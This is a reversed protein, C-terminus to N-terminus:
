RCFFFSFSGFSGTFKGLSGPFEGLSGPFEGLSGTFKGLSGPFAGLVGLGQRNTKGANNKSGKAGEWGTRSYRSLKLEYMM